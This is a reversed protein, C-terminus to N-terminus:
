SFDYKEFYEVIEDRVKRYVNLIEEETGKANFPDLFLKHTKSPNGKYDLCNNKANNGLTFIEDFSVNIYDKMVNSTNKSIDIGIENMVIISKPNVGHAEVGASYINVKGKLRKELFGHAMQSRCSNGTCLLLINM